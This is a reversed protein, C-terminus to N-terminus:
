IFYTAYKTHFINYLVYIEPLLGFVFENEFNYRLIKWLINPFLLFLDCKRITIVFNIM